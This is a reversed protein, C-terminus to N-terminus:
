AHNGCLTGAPESSAPHSKRDGTKGTPDMGLDSGRFAQRRCLRSSRNQCLLSYGNERCLEVAKWLREETGWCPKFEPADKNWEMLEKQEKEPLFAFFVIGAVTDFLHFDYRGFKLQKERFGKHAIGEM